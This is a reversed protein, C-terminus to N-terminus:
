RWRSFNRKCQFTEGPNFPRIVQQRVGSSKAIPGLREIESKIYADFERQVMTRPTLGQETLKQKMAPEEAIGQITKALLAVIPAPTKAPAVFGFWTSFEYGPIVSEAVTPVDRLM